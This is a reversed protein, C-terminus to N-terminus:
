ILICFIGAYQIMAEQETWGLVVARVIEMKEKEKLKMVWARPGATMLILTGPQCRARGELHPNLLKRHGLFHRMCTSATMSRSVVWPSHLSTGVTLYEEQCRQAIFVSCFSIAKQRTRKGRGIAHNKAESSNGGGKKKFYEYFKIELTDLDLSKLEPGRQWWSLWLPPNLFLAVSYSNSKNPGVPFELIM